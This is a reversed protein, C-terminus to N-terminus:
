RLQCEAALHTGTHAQKPTNHASIGSGHRERPTMAAAGPPRGYAGLEAKEATSRGTASSAM